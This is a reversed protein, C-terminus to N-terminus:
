KKFDICIKLKGNKKLVVVMPSLWTPKEISQIFGAILLKDINQKSTTVHNPNLRYTAQHALPIITDL